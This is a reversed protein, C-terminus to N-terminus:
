SKGLVAGMGVGMGVCKRGGGGMGVGCCSRGAHQGNGVFGWCSTPYMGMVEYRFVAVVEGCDPSTEMTVVIIM